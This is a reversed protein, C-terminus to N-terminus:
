APVQAKATEAAADTTRPAPVASRNPHEPPPAAFGAILALLIAVAPLLPLPPFRLPYFTPDLQAASYSTSAYLLVASVVGCGAVVWEALLWPDPRYHTRTVRRSGLMLGACCLVAGVLIASLGLLRPATGDLLGYIGAALGLMGGVMLAGTVRRSSTTASGSRGYGRSDMAAALLLSRDLADELVPIAIARLAHLGKSAGGRLRRAKAVRQVSEILQPAVSIAVVVAMGLEYLAGPLIRLARKPNALANAAGICCILTGLRLGAVAASLTAELSVPGGLSVGAYWAPTPIHPLRFLIHDTPSIGTGFVTRFVIRLVIVFVALALYYKFARAWPARGRRNSVVFGLVALALLLLLPNTTRNVAVALGLAWIWWAIPHLTRPVRHPDRIGFSRSHGGRTPTAAVPGAAAPAVADVRGLRESM